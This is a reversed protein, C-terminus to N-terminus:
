EPPKVVEPRVTKAVKEAGRAVFYAGFVVMLLNELLELYGAPVDFNLPNLSDMLVLLTLLGLLFILSFPRINRTLWSEMKVDGM